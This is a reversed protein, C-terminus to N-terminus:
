PKALMIVDALVDGDPDVIGSVVVDAGPYLDSARAPGDQHLYLTEPDVRVRVRQGTVSMVYISDSGFWDITGGASPFMLAATGMRELAARSTARTPRAAATDRQLRLLAAFAIGCGGQVVLLAVMGLPRAIRRRRSDPFTSADSM